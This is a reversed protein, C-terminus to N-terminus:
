DSLVEKWVINLIKKNENEKNVKIKVGSWSTARSLAVYTQGHAFSFRTFDIGIKKFTQAQAKNITFAFAPKLPFQHRKLTFPFLKEEVITIRPIFCQEGTKDGCMIVCRLVYKGLDIVQLRTGNCLGEDVNLNRLLMVPCDKKLLLCHNPLSAAKLAHLIENTVEFAKSSESEDISNYVTHEGPFEKMCKTNYSDVDSNFSSLIARHKLQSYDRNKFIDGFIEFVLDGSCFCSNPVTIFDNEDNQSGNGIDLLNDAFMKEEPDARMNETLHLIKVYKWLRSNKILLDVIETRAANKKIPLIQRFDGSLIFTKGGFLKDTKLLEKMKNNIADLCFRPCMPAEDWIFVDTEMIEKAEKSGLEIGATSDRNIDFKFRNHLTRGKKLVTAAIGSFAMNCVCKNHSRFLHYLATLTFSKGTGGPGDVFLFKQKGENFFDNFENVIMFQDKNMLNILKDALNAENKPDVIDGESIRKEHGTLQPMGVFDNLSKDQDLLKKNILYLAQMYADHCDPYHKLLDFSLDDKFKDWLLHPFKPSCHILINAFLLRLARPFKSQSAEEMCDFWENDDRILGRALCAQSFTEYDIDDVQKLDSYGRAPVHLLLYRLYFKEHEKPNVTYMRGLKNQFAKRLKWSNKSWTCHRPMDPYLINLTPNLRMFNFYALLKSDRQMKDIIHERDDQQEIFVPQENELHVDLRDISHSKGQLPFKFLRWCAEVPGICRAELFNSVEDYNLIKQTGDATQTVCEVTAADYGKYIYKYLYKVAKIDAVKEVNIHCNFMKLLAPNYSVVYENTLRVGKKYVCKGNNPRKYFPYGNENIETMERFAKPFKKSCKNKKKDWCIANPYTLGCPGHIMFKVVIDYLQKSQIEDPIEATICRDLLEPTRLKYENQLTILMHMHPLGRKQFEIVWCFAVVDGFLGEKIILDRLKDSKLKFVRAVIEPRDNPTENANLCKLIDPDSPNCTMTIFLDPKGTEKVQIMADLFHEHMNRPGGSFNSPLIVRKGLELGSKNAKESLFEELVTYRCKQIIKQHLRIYTLRDWEVRTAM